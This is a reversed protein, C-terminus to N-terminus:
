RDRSLRMASYPIGFVSYPENERWRNNPRFTVKGDSARNWTRMHVSGLWTSILKQKEEIAPEDNYNCYGLINLCAQGPTSNYMSLSLLMEIKQRLDEDELLTSKRDDNKNSRPTGALLDFELLLREPPNKKEVLM